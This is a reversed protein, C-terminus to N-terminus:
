NEYLRNLRNLVEELRIKMNVAEIKESIRSTDDSICDNLANHLTMLQNMTEIIEQKKIEEKSM